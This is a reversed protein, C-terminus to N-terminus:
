NKVNADANIVIRVNDIMVSVLIQDINVCVLRMGLCMVRKM